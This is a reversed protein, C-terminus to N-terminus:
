EVSVLHQKLYQYNFTPRKTHPWYSWCEHESAEPKQTYDNISNRVLEKAHPHVTHITVSYVVGVKDDHIQLSVEMNVKAFSDISANFMQEDYEMGFDKTDHQICIIWQIVNETDLIRYIKELGECFISAKWRDLKDTVTRMERIILIQKELLLAEDDEYKKKLSELESRVDSLAADFSM